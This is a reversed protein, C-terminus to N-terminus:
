SREGIASRVLPYLPRWTDPYPPNKPDMEGVGRAVPSYKKVYADNGVYEWMWAVPESPQTTSRDAAERCETLAYKQPCPRPPNDDPHCTCPRASQRALALRTHAQSLAGRLGYVERELQRYDSERVCWREGLHAPAAFLTPGESPQIEPVAVARIAVSAVYKMDDRVSMGLKHQEAYYRGYADICEQVEPPLPDIVQQSKDM